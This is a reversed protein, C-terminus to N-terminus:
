ANSQAREIYHPLVRQDKYGEERLQAYHEEANDSEFKGKALLYVVSASGITTMISYYSGTFNGKFMFILWCLLSVLFIPLLFLMALIVQKPFALRWFLFRGELKTDLLRQTLLKEKDAQAIKFDKYFNSKPYGLRRSREDFDDVAIELYEEIEHSPIEVLLGQSELKLLLEEREKLKKKRM